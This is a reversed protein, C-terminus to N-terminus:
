YPAACNKNIKYNFNMLYTAILPANYDNLTINTPIGIKYMTKKLKEIDNDFLSVLEKVTVNSCNPYVSPRQFINEFNENFYMSMYYIFFVGITLVISLSLNSTYSYIYLFTVIIKVLPNKLIVKFQKPLDDVTYIISMILLWSIIMQVIINDTIPKLFVNASNNIPKIIQEVTNTISNM